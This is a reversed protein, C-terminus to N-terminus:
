NAWLTGFSSVPMFQGNGIYQLEVAAGQLGSIYGNTGTTTSTQLSSQSVYIGNGFAAAALKSGDASSAIGDWDINFPANTQPTWTAGWNSSVYLAGNNVVAALKGGDASSAISQWNANPASIQNTWDVGSDASTYIGGGLAAAALRSGDASSAVSEWNASAPLGSTQKTWNAGSNSSTYIQAGLVAAVLHAGDSSSAVSQWNASAPLGTTQKAWTSGSDASTYIGGGSIVAALKNGNASSALSVWNSGNPAGSSRVWTTGSNTYISGGSIAAVLKSGDASSAVTRWGTNGPTTAPTWTMGSDSSYYISSGSTVAVLKSGDASSAIAEWGLGTTGSGLTWFSNIFSSFSGLVSQGANQAIKWGGAGAGSIRVVDAINLSSPLTVTVVQSNTLLYGTDSVAQVTTGTQVLWGVLGNGFFSGAFSNGSNTFTNFGTFVNSGTFTQNTNLLAVNTSLRADALTGSKLQSANLSTLNTGNGIFVGNFINSAGPFNNTGTFTNFGTFTQNMNLLAVNGSLRADALTGGTVQSANLNVLNTGNGIFTGNFDNAANNFNVPGSYTGSVQASSLTGNLQTANVTGVLNSAGNAFIAYPSPTLLQRPSLTTFNTTGTLCVAIQLWRNPGTFVNAGFDLVTTFLGNSVVVASNTVPAGVVDSGGVSGYVTFALDYNSNAVSGNSFLQGQYTFATGQARLSDVVCFAVLICFLLRASKKLM